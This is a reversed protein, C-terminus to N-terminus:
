CEAYEPEIEEFAHFILGFSETEITGLYVMWDPDHAVPHGTGYITFTRNVHPEEPDLLVWMQAKTDQFRVTLPVAEKPLPITNSGARLEYKYITHM